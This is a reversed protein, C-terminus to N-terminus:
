LSFFPVNMKSSSKFKQTTRVKCIGYEFELIRDHENNKRSYNVLQLLQKEKVILYVAMTM